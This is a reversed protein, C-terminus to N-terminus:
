LLQAIELDALQQELAFAREEPTPKPIVPKDKNALWENYIEEGIALKEGDENFRPTFIMGDETIFCDAWMEEPIYAKELIENKEEQTM